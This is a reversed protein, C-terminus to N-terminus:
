REPIKMQRLDLLTKVPNNAVIRNQTQFVILFLFNLYHIGLQSTVRTSAGQLLDMPEDDDVRLRVDQVANRKKNSVQPVDPAQDDDSDELESESGYLV